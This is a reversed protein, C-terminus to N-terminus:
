DVINNDLEWGSLIKMAVYHNICGKCPKESQNTHRNKCTDCDKEEERFDKM